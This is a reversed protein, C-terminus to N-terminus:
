HYGGIDETAITVVIYVLTQVILSFKFTTM